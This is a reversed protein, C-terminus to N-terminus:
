KVQIKEQRRSIDERLGRIREHDERCWFRDILILAALVIMVNIGLGVTCARQDQRQRALSDEYRVFVQRSDSLARISKVGFLGKSYVLTYKQGSIMEKEIQERSFVPCSCVYAKGQASYIVPSQSRGVMEMKMHSYVIIETKWTDPRDEFIGLLWIPITLALFVSIGMKAFITKWVASIAQKKNKIYGDM